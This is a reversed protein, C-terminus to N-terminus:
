RDAGTGAEWPYETLWPGSFNGPSQAIKRKAAEVDEPTRLLKVASFGQWKLKTRFEEAGGFLDGLAFDNLLIIGRRGAHEAYLATVVGTGGETAFVM